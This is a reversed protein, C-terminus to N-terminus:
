CDGIVYFSVDDQNYKGGFEQIRDHITEFTYCGTEQHIIAGTTGSYVTIEWKQYTDVTTTEATKDITNASISSAGLVFLSAFLLLSKKM